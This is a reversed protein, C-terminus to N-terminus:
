VRLCYTLVFAKWCSRAARDQNRVIDDPAHIVRVKLDDRSSDIFLFIYSILEKYNKHMNYRLQM